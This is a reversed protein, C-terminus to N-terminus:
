FLFILTRTIQLIKRSFTEKSSEGKEQLTKQILTHQTNEQVDLQVKTSPEPTIKLLSCLCRGRTERSSLELAREGPVLVGSSGNLEVTHLWYCSKWSVPSDTLGFHKWIRRRSHDEIKVRWGGDDECELRSLVKESLSSWISGVMALCYSFRFWRLGNEGQRM